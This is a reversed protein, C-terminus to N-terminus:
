MGLNKGVVLNCNPCRHIVNRWNGMCFPILCWPGCLFLLVGAKFYTLFGTEQYTQTTIYEGCHNCTMKAPKNGYNASNPEALILIFACDSIESLM